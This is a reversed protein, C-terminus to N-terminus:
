LSISVGARLVSGDPALGLEGNLFLKEAVKYKGGLYFDYYTGTAEGSIDGFITNVTATAKVYGLSLGLYAASNRKTLLYYRVFPAFHTATIEIGDEDGSVYGAGIGISFKDGSFYEFRGHIGGYLLGLSPELYKCGKELENGSSSQRKRPFPPATSTNQFCWIQQQFNEAKRSTVDGTMSQKGTPTIQFMEIPNLSLYKLEEESIDSTIFITTMVKSGTKRKQSSVETVTFGRIGGETKLRVLSGEPIVVNDVGADNLGQYYVLWFVIQSKDNEKYVFASVKFSYGFWLSGGDGLTGGYFQFTEGTFDDTSTREPDCDQAGLPLCFLLLIFVVVSLKKKM